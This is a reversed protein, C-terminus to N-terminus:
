IKTLQNLREEFTKCGNQKGDLYCWILANNKIFEFNQNEIIKLLKKESKSLLNKM